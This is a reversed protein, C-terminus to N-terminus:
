MLIRTGKKISSTQTQRIAYNYTIQFHSLAVQWFVNLCLIKTNIVPYNSKFVFSNELDIFNSHKGKVTLLVIACVIALSFLCDAAHCDSTGSLLFVSATCRGSVQERRKWTAKHRSAVARATGKLNGPCGPCGPCCGGAVEGGTLGNRGKLGDM